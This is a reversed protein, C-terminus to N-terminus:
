LLLMLGYPPAQLQQTGEDLASVALRGTQKQFEQGVPQVVVGADGVPHHGGVYSIVLPGVGGVGKFWPTGPSARERGWGVNMRNGFGELGSRKRLRDAKAPGAVALGSMFDLRPAQHALLAHFPRYAGIEVAILPGQPDGSVVGAPRRGPPAFLRYPRLTAR